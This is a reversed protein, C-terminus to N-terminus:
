LWSCYNDPRRLVNVGSGMWAQEEVLMAEQV